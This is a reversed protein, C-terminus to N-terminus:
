LEIEKTIIEWYEGSSSSELTTVLSAAEYEKTFIGAILDSVDIAEHWIVIYLTTKM